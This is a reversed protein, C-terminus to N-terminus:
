GFSLGEGRYTKVRSTIKHDKVIILENFRECLEGSKAHRLFIPDGINLDIDNDYIVPTQM